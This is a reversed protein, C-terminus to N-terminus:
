VISDKPITASTEAAIGSGRLGDTGDSFHRGEYRRKRNTILLILLCGIAIGILFLTISIGAVAGGGLKNSSSTSGSSKSTTTVGLSTSSSSPGSSTVTPSASSSPVDIISIITLSDTRVGPGFTTTTGEPIPVVYEGSTVSLIVTTITSLM